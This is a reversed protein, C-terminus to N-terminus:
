QNHSQPIFASSISHIFAHSLHPIFDTSFAATYGDLLSLGSQFPTFIPQIFSFAIQRMGLVADFSISSGSFSPEFFSGGLFDRQRTCESILISGFKFIPAKQYLCDL